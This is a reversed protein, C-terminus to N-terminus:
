DKKKIINDKSTDENKSQNLNLDLNSEDTINNETNM